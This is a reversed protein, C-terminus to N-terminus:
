SVHLHMCTRVYWNWMGEKLLENSIARFM